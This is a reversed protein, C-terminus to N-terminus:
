NFLEPHAKKYEEIFKDIKSPHAMIFRCVPDGKARCLIEKVALQIGFSEECWGASYGANMSCVPFNTYLADENNTEKAIEANKRLWSDAEFSHLHDYIFYYNEDQTPISESFIHVFAWGTYAFHIPGTSFKDLPDSVGSAKHFARADSKGLARAIDYTISVAAKVTEKKDLQPYTEKISEFFQMSMSAARVLIYREGGIIISGESVKEVRDSFYRKVYKEAQEFSARMDDPVNASELTM